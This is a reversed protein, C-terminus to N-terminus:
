QLFNVTIHINFDFLIMTRASVDVSNCHAVVEDWLEWIYSFIMLLIFPDM